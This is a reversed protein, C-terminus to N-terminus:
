SQPRLPVDVDRQGRDIAGRLEPPSREIELRYEGDADPVGFDGSGSRDSEGILEGDLFLATRGSDERSFGEHDESFDNYVPVSM